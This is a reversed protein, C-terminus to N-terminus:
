QFASEPGRLEERTAVGAARASKVSVSSFRELVCHLVNIASLYDELVIHEHPTHDLSSDGPGYALMPCYWERALVNMDSTGTKFVHRPEIGVQRLATRFVGALQTRSSFVAPRESQPFTVEREDVGLSDCQAILEELEAQVETESFQPGLRFGIHLHGEESLGDHGLHLGQITMDLPQFVGEKDRNKETVFSRVVNACGVLSDGVSPVSSATHSLSGRMRINMVLRGKYGLTIGSTGSPEGIIVGAPEPLTKLLHHAGRSSAVEEEVAGVVILHLPIDKSLRGVAEVFSAFPGKADVSGRGYLLTRQAEQVRKVPIEGPVTDIHGVLYLAPFQPSGWEGIVNGVEDIRVREYGLQTMRKSVRHALAKEGGSLSPIRIIDELFSISENQLTM